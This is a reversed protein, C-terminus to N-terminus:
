KLLSIIYALGKEGNMAGFVQPPVVSVTKEPFKKEVDPKLFRSQPGILIIDASAGNESVTSASYAKIDGDFGKADMAKQVNVAFLSTSAGASCFIRVTLHGELKAFETEEMKTEEMKAEESNQVENEIKKEESEKKKGKGFLGM